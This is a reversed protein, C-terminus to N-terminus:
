GAMARSGCHRLSSPHQIGGSLDAAMWQLCLVKTGPLVASTVRERLGLFPLLIATCYSLSLSRSLSCNCIQYIELHSLSSLFCARSNICSTDTSFERVNVIEISYNVPPSYFLIPLVIWHWGTNRLVYKIWDTARCLPFFVVRFYWMTKTHVSLM